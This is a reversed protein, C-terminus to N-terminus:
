SWIGRKKRFFGTEPREIKCTEGLTSKAHGTQLFKHQFPSGPEGRIGPIPFLQSRWSWCRRKPLVSCDPTFIRGWFLAVKISKSTVFSQTDGPDGSGNELGFGAVGKELDAAKVKSEGDMPINSSSGARPLVPAKIESFIPKRQTKKPNKELNERCGLFKGVM